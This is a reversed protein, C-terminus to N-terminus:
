KRRSVRLGQSIITYKDYTKAAEVESSIAGIYQKKMCGMFMVQWKKGNKSVGRYKSGRKSKMRRTRDQKIKAWINVQREAQISNLLQQLELKRRLFHERDHETPPESAPLSTAPAAPSM